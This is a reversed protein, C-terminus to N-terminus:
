RFLHDDNTQNRSILERQFSYRRHKAYSKNEDSYELVVLLMLPLVISSDKGFFNHGHKPTHEDNTYRMHNSYYEVDNEKPHFMHQEIKERDEM